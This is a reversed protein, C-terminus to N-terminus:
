KLQRRRKTPKGTWFSGMNTGDCGSRGTGSSVMRIALAANRDPSVTFRDKRMRPAPVLDALVTFQQALPRKRTQTSGSDLHMRRSFSTEAIRM